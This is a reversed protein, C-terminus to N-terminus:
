TSERPPAGGPGVQFEPDILPSNGAQINFTWVIKQGLLENGAFTLVDKDPNFTFSHLDFPYAFPTRASYPESSLSITHRGKRKQVRLRITDGRNFIPRQKRGLDSGPNGDPPTEGEWAWSGADVISAVYKTKSM